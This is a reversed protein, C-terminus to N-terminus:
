NSGVRSNLESIFQDKETDTVKGSETEVSRLAKYGADTVEKQEAPTSSSSSSTTKPKPSPIHPISPIGWAVLDGNELCGAEVPEVDPQDQNEPEDSSNMLKAKELLEDNLDIRAQRETKIESYASAKQPDLNAFEAFMEERKKEYEASNKNKFKKVDKRLVDIKNKEEKTLTTKKLNFDEISKSYSCISSDIKENIKEIKSKLTLCVGTKCRIVEPNKLARLAEGLGGLGATNSGRQAEDNSTVRKAEVPNIVFVSVFLLAMILLLFKKNKM